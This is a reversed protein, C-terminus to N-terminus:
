VYCINRAQNYLENSIGYEPIIPSLVGANKFGICLLHMAICDYTILTSTYSSM